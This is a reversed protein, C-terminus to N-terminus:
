EGRDARGEDDVDLGLEFGIRVGLGCGEETRDEEGEVLGSNRVFSGDNRRDLFDWGVFDDGDGSEHVCAEKDRQEGRKNCHQSFLPQVPVQSM